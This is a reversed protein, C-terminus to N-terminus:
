TLAELSKEYELHSSDRLGPFKNRIVWEGHTIVTEPPKTWATKFLKKASKNNGEELELMGYSEFLESYHFLDIGSTDKPVLRKFSPTSKSAIM